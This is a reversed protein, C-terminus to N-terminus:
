VNELFVCHIYLIGRTAQLCQLIRYKMCISDDSRSSRRVFSPRLHAGRDRPTLFVTSVRGAIQHPKCGAWLFKLCSCRRWIRLRYRELEPRVTELSTSMMNPSYIGHFCKITSRGLSRNLIMEKSRIVPRAPLFDNEYRTTCSKHTQCCFSCIVWM